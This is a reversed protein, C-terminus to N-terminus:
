ISTEQSSPRVSISTVGGSWNSIMEPSLYDIPLGLERAIDIEAAVGRSEEWGDLMLVIMQDCRRLHEQDVRQWFSWDTPLGYSVLPHSHVIPSFVALGAHLLHVVAQCADGYRQQRVAPSEHSYPSALYIM